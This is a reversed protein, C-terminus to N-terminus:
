GVRGHGIWGVHPDCWTHTRARHCQAHTQAHAIAHQRAPTHTQTRTKTCTQIRTQTRRRPHYAHMRAHPARSQTQPHTSTRARVCVRARAPACATVCACAGVRGRACVSIQVCLRLLARACPRERVCLFGCACACFRVRVLGYARVCGPLAAAAAAAHLLVALYVAVALHDVRPALLLLDHLTILMPADLHISANHLVLEANDAAERMLCADYDVMRQLLHFSLHTASHIHTSPLITAAQV